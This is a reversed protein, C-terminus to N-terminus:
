EFRAPPGPWNACAFSIAGDSIPHALPLYCSSVKVQAIRDGAATTTM